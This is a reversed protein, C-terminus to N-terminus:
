GVRESVVDAQWEFGGSSGADVPLTKLLVADVVTFLATNAGIGLASHFYRLPSSQVAGCCALAM